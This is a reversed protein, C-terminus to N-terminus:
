RVGPQGSVLALARIWSDGETGVPEDRFRYDQKRIFEGLEGLLRLWAERQLAILEAAAAPDAMEVVQRLHPLCLGASRALDARVERDDLHELLTQGYIMEASERVQCAPCPQRPSLDALPGGRGALPPTRRLWQWLGAAAPLAAPDALRKAVDQLVDRYLIATGLADHEEYMQWAHLNCFGRARRFGSRVESDNVNEYLLNDLYRRVVRRVLRCLACGEQELAERLEHYSTHKSM